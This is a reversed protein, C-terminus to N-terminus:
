YKLKYYYNRVFQKLNIRVIHKEFINELVALFLLFTNAFYLMVLWVIMGNNYM